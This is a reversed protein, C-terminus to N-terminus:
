HLRQSRRVGGLPGAIPPEPREDGSDSGESARLAGTDVVITEGDPLEGPINWQPDFAPSIPAPSGRTGESAPRPSGSPETIVPAEPAGVAEMPNFPVTEVGSLVENWNWELRENEHFDPATSM